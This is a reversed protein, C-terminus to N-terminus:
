FIEVKWDSLYQFLRTLDKNNVSGDGNVDLADQQVEVKWDSLYQFLRTLDKNNVAKDGNIDGPIHSSVTIKGNQVGFAVNKENINYVDDANYTVTIDSTSGAKAKDSVKFTLTAFVKDGTTNATGNYWNLTVPSTMTQPPQSQGGMASNYDVATLTLDSGYAVKMKISAIGPNNKLSINIKVESGASATKSDVVFQPSNADIPKPDTVTVTCPNSSVGDASATIKATGV